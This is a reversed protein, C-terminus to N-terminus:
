AWLRHTEEASNLEEHGGPDEHPARQPAAGGGEGRSINSVRSMTARQTIRCYGAVLFIPNIKMEIKIVVNLKCVYMDIVSQLIYWTLIIRESLFYM